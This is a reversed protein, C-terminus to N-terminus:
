KCGRTDAGKAVRACTSSRIPRGLVGFASSDRRLSRYESLLHIADCVGIIVILPALTQLISDQPWDLWGLVGFTWLLAIGMTSLTIIVSQWSFTQAFIVAAIVLVMVPILRATSDALERGGIINGFAEGVLKFDFEPFPAIAELVADVVVEDVSSRSASTQIVIAGALGDESVINRVWLPDRLAHVRLERHDSALEGRELFRRVTFGDPRPLFLPMNTPSYIKSIGERDALNAVVQEAMKLSDPDLVSECPRGAGCEWAVYLPIGGGYDDLMRDLRQIAPHEDGILVRSGFETRVRTAGIALLITLLLLVAAACSQHQLCLATLRHV